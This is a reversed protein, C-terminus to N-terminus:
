YGANDLLIQLIYLFLAINDYMANKPFVDIM